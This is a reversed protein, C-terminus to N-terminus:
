VRTNDNKDILKNLMQKIELMDQKLLSIEESNKQQEKLAPNLELLHQKCKDRNTKFLEFNNIFNDLQNCTSEVIPILRERNPTITLLGNNATVVEANSNCVFPNNYGEVTIDIVMDRAINDFRPQTITIIKRTSYDCTQADFCYVIDGLKLENIKM